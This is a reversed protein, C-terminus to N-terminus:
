HTEASPDKHHDMAPMRKASDELFRLREIVKDWQKLHERWQARTFTVLELRYRRGSSLLLHDLPEVEVSSFHKEIMQHTMGDFLRRLVIDRFHDSGNVARMEERNIEVQYGIVARPVEKFMESQEEYEIQSLGMTTGQLYHRLTKLNIPHLLSYRHLIPRFASYGM